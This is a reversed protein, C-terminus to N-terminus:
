VEDLYRDLAAADAETWDDVFTSKFAEMLEVARDADGRLHAYRARVRLVSPTEGSEILSGILPEAAAVDENDLFVNALKVTARFRTVVFGTEDIHKLTREYADIAGAADGQRLAIDGRLEMAEIAPEHLAERLTYALVNDVREGASTLNDDQVDIRALRIDVQAVRSTDEIEEFLARSDAYSSRADDLEGSSFEAQALQAMATAMFLKDNAESAIEFAENAATIADDYRRENVYLISLMGLIRGQGVRDGIDRRIALSELHLPEADGIRGQLRRLYGFNNLMMAENRRDGTARFAELAQTLHLEAQDLKGEAMDINALAAPIGGPLIGLQAETYAVTARALLARAEDHDRRDKANIALNNLIMGEAFRDGAQQAVLLGTELTEQAADGRGTRIYVTGLGHHARARLSSTPEEPLTDLIELFAAEADQWRGLIRACSAWEYHAQTISETASKVVEFLELADGCRGELSLALGRSYAENIFPDEVLVTIERSTDAQEGLLNTISRIMSRLLSTPEAGVMAGYEVQGDVSHLAYSLRLAGASRELHTLLLHSAGYINRLEDLDAAARDNDPMGNTEVFRIVDSSRVVSLKSSQAILDTAFGMLGLRTWDYESDDTLNEVPMIALHVNLTPPTGPWLYWAFGLLAIVFAASLARPLMSPSERDPTETAPEEETVLKAIFQYGHGHVTRIVAQTDASDGVARRAKMIARALATESVIMGAWVTDQIEDKDVAKHRQEILYLLLAFVRPELPVLEGNRRLERRDPDFECDNFRIVSSSSESMPLSITGFDMSETSLADGPMAGRTFM